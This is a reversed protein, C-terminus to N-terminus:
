VNREMSGTVDTVKEFGYKDLADPLQSILKPLFLKDTTTATGIQVASAGAMMLEMVDDVSSAGGVGIIPINVVQSAEYIMRVAIPKIADGSMGGIGRYLVPKRTNLDLKMGVVTNILTLGDAGADEVAKAIPKIDTVNPSLKAYIPKNTVKRCAAIVEAASEPDVGFEMGGKEVNPCSLNIELATINEIKDLQAALDAYEKVTEGAISIMQPLDPLAVALAPLYDNVVNEIGPNALGVSNMLGGEIPTIWPQPNGKREDVTTTKLVLAGLENLDFDDLHDLGYFFSGSAPMIPNKLDLGPLNVALRSDTM